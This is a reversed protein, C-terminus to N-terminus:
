RAYRLLAEPVAIGARLDPAPIPEGARLSLPIVGAWCDLALDEPDDGPPGSRVKASGEVIPLEMVSTGRLENESPPRVQAWRGPAVHETIARLAELKRGPDNVAKLSGLLVVSRYNMSHHFASRAMVLGDVLTVSLCAPVGADLARLMRSAASGHVFVTDGARAHITPIVFPQGEQVFGLHCVLAEDLIADITARDHRGRAPLRQATTRPTPTLGPSSM